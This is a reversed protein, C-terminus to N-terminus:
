ARNIDVVWWARASDRIEDETFGSEFGYVHRPLDEDADEVRKGLKVWLTRTADM